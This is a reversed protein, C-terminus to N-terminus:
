VIALRPSKNSCKNYHCIRRLKKEQFVTRHNKWRKKLEKSHETNRHYDYEKWKYTFNNRKKDSTQNKKCTVLPQEKKKKYNFATNKNKNNYGFATNKKRIFYKKKKTIKEQAWGAHDTEEKMSNRLFFFFISFPFLSLSLSWALHVKKKVKVFARSLTWSNREYYLPVIRMNKREIKSNCIWTTLLM